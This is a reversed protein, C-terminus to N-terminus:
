HLWAAMTWAWVQAGCLYATMTYTVSESLSSGLSRYAGKSARQGRSITKENSYGVESIEFAFGEDSALTKSLAHINSSGESQDCEGREMWWKRYVSDLQGSDRLHELARNLFLLLTSGEPVALGFGDSILNVSINQLDCPKRNAVYSAINDPLIYAFQGGRARQIGLDNTQLLLHPNVHMQHFLGKIKTDNSHRLAKYIVGRDLTGIELYPYREALEALSTVETYPGLANKALLVSAKTTMYPMSFDVVTERQHTVYMPAAAIDAEQLAHPHPHPHPSIFDM